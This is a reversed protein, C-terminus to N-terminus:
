GHRGGDADPDPAPLPDPVYPDPPVSRNNLDVSLFVENAVPHRLEEAL